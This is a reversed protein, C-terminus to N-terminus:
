QGKFFPTNCLKRVTDYPEAKIYKRLMEPSRHGTIRMIDYVDVGMYYMMTAGTRRAVHTTVLEWQPKYYCREVGAKVESIKIPADIGAAKAIKKLHKNMIQLCMTPITYGYKQMIAKLEPRCPIAVENGTKKQIFHLMWVEEGDVVIKELNDSGIQCFDSHRQCTCVGALFLDKALQAKGGMGSTDVIAFRFLEDENLAISVVDRRAVGYRKDSFYTNDTYRQFKALGMITKLEKICKSITNVKFERVKEMYLRYDDLFRLDIDDFDLEQSRNAQYDAFVKMAWSVSKVSSPMFPKEKISFRRGDKIESLYQSIFRNLTMRVPAMASRLQHRHSEEKFYSTLLSHVTSSSIESLGSLKSELEKQLRSICAMTTAKEKHKRWKEVDVYIGTPVKIDTGKRRIRISLNAQGHAKQTYFSIM